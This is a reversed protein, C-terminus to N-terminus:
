VLRLSVIQSAIRMDIKTNLTESNKLLNLIKGQNKKIKEDDTLGIFISDIIGTTEEVDLIRRAYAKIIEVERLQDPTAREGIMKINEQLKVLLKDAATVVDIDVTESLKEKAINNADSQLCSLVSKAADDKNKMANIREAKLKEIM